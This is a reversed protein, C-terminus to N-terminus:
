VILEVFCGLLLVWVLLGVWILCVIYMGAWLCDFCNVWVVFVGSVGFDFVCVLWFGFVLAFCLCSLSFWFLWCCGVCVWLCGIFLWCAIFYNICFLRVM